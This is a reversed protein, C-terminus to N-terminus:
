LLVLMVVNFRLRRESAGLASFTRANAATKGPQEIRVLVWLM